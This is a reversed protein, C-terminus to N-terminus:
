PPEDTPVVGSTTSPLRCSGQTDTFITEAGEYAVHLRAPYLFGFRVGPKGHLLERTKTFLARQKVVESPLDRFINIREGQFRLQRATVVKYLIEDLVQDHHICLILHQPRENYHPNDGTPLTSQRDRLM